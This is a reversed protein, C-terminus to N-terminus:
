YKMDKMRLINKLMTWPNYNKLENIGKDCFANMLSSSYGSLMTTNKELSKNPFGDTKRLNWFIIHPVKYEVNYKSELGVKKYLDKINDMMTNFKSKFNGRINNISADIQMDSLIILSFNSAEEPPINNQVIVNLIFEM